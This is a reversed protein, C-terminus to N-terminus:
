RGLVAAGLRPALLAALRLAAMAAVFTNLANSFEHDLRAGFRSVLTTVVSECLAGLFGGAITAWLLAGPVRPVLGLGAGAFGILAAGALAAATGAFSVAGPTGRPVPRLTLPSYARKGYLTGVETGLTDALAAALAAAFAFAPVRLLLLAAAVGCNAVVNGAGRRGEHSQATGAAHKRRYGLRTALTGLLFFSWLLAYAGWGGAALVVFGVIAGAVAGSPRVVRLAGMAVAVAANVALAVAWRGWPLPGLAPAAPWVLGMQYIALATPLAAVLNDDIGAPVSELFAYLGAGIMLIAVTDAQAERGSVFLHVLVAAPGAVAWDALLGVWTKSPNWPLAPGGVTKGAIAAAPDGFAMMAWVAAAIPLYPGRFILILLLVMAPYAVIGPDHRRGADRYISRGIRPLVFLNGLLALLALAAAAKWDLFRLSLAALGFGAHVAKRSWEGRTM